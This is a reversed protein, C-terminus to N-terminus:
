EKSRGLDGVEGASRFTEDREAPAVGPEPVGQAVPSPSRLRLDPFPAVTFYAEPEEVLGKALPVTEDAEPPAAALSGGGGGGHGGRGDHRRRRQDAELPARREDGTGPDGGGLVAGVAHYLRWKQPHRKGGAPFGYIEKVRITFTAFEARIIANIRDPLGTQNWHIHIKHPTLM